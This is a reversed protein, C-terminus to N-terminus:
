SHKNYCYLCGHPCNRYRGIDISKTCGCAKRQSPDKETDFDFGTVSAYYDGDICKSPQIIDALHPQTCGYLKIGFENLVNKVTQAIRRQETTDRQTKIGEPWRQKVHGYWTIFSTTCRDIGLSAARRALSRVIEPTHYGPILPDMRWNILSPNFGKSILQEACKWVEEAQPVNPELVSGGLGTITLQLAVRRFDMGSNILNKPNKTWLVWFSEEPYRHYKEMLEDFHFTPMDERRSASFIIM